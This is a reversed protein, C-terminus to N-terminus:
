KFSAIRSNRIRNFILKRFARYAVLQVEALKQKFAPRMFPQPKHGPHKVTRTVGNKGTSTIAHQSVGFEQLIAHAAKKNNTVAVEGYNIRRRTRKIVMNAALQGTDKPALIRTRDLIPQAAEKAIKQLFLGGLDKQLAKFRELAVNIGLLKADVKM